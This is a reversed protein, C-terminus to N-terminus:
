NQLGFTPPEIRDPPVMLILYNDPFVIAIKKGSLAFPFIM